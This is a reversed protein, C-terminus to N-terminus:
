CYRTDRASRAAAAIAFARARVEQPVSGKPPAMAPRTTLSFELQLVSVLVVGTYSYWRVVLSRRDCDLSRVLCSSLVVLRVFRRVVVVLGEPLM